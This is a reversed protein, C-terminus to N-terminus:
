ISEMETLTDGLDTIFSDIEEYSIVYPPFFRFTRTSGHYDMLYGREFMREQIAAGLGAHGGDLEVGFM